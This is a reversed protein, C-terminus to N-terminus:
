ASVDVGAEPFAAIGSFRTEGFFSVGAFGKVLALFAEGFHDRIAEDGCINEGVEGGWLLDLLASGGGGGFGM